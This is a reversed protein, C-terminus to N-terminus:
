LLSEVGQFEQHRVNQFKFEISPRLIDFWETLKGGVLKPMIQMLSDGISKVRM